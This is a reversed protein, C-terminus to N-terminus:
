KGPGGPASGTDVPAQAVLVKQLLHYPAARSVQLRSLQPALLERQDPFRCLLSALLIARRLPHFSLNDLQAPSPAHEQLLLRQCKRDHRDGQEFANAAQTRWYDAKAPNGALHYSISLCLHDWPDALEELLEANEEIKDPRGLAMLSEADLANGPEAPPQALKEIEAFDGLLYLVKQRVHNVRAVIEPDRLKSPATSWRAFEQRAADPQGAVILADCLFTLRQITREDHGLKSRYKEALAAANGSALESLHRLHLLSDENAHLKEADDLLARCRPWDGQEAADAAMAVKPWALSPEAAASKQWYEAAKAADEELRGALYLLKGDAPNQELLKRYYDCLEAFGAAVDALDQYTRHWEVDLPQRTLGAKLYALARGRQQTKEAFVQYLKFLLTNRSETTLYAEAITLAREPDGAALMVLREPPLKVVDLQRKTVKSRHSPLSLEEPAPEFLYDVHPLYVFPEGVIYHVKSPTTDRSYYLESNALAAAGGVNLIWVPRKWWREFYGSQLNVEVTETLPGEIHAVHKGEPLTVTSRDAVSVPAREDIKVRAPQPFANVIHLTRNQRLMENRVLMGVAALSAIIACYALFRQGQSFASNGPQFIGWWRARRPPLISESRQLRQESRLIKQRFARNQAVQPVEELLRQYISLAEEHRFAAQYRDALVELLGLSYTHSAGPAELFDLLKRAEDLKKQDILRGALAARPGPAAPDLEHAREILPTALDHSGVEGLQDALGILLEMRDPFEGLMATRFAKAPEHQHYALLVAHTELAKEPTPSGRYEDLAGSVTLQRNMEWQDANIAYHRQCNPCYDLIHKRRLPIVPIFLVVFWLRTDYSSLQAQRNCHRCIGVRVSADKKGYYHTGVGNVTTPM